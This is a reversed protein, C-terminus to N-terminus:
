LRYSMVSSPTPAFTDDRVSLEAALIHAESKGGTRRRGHVSPPGVSERRGCGKKAM